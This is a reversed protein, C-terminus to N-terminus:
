ATGHGRIILSGPRRRSLSRAEKNSVYRVFRLLEDIDFPKTMYYDTGSKWGEWVDADASRATLLIVPIHRTDPTSKLASLVEFGDRGPMMVDLVVVDPRLARTMTEAEIGDRCLLVEFGEVEFNLALLARVDPDDDAILLRCLASM